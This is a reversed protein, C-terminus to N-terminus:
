FNKSELSLLTIFLNWYDLLYVKIKNVINSPGFVYKNSDKDQFRIFEMLLVQYYPKMFPIAVSINGSFNYLQWWVKNGQNFNM